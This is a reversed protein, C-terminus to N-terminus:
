KKYDESKYDAYNKLFEATKPLKRLFHARSVTDLYIM